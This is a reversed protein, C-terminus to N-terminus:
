TKNLALLIKDLGDIKHRLALARDVSAWRFEIHDESLKIEGQWSLYYVIRVVHYNKGRAHMLSSTVFGLQMSSVDLDTEEKIERRLTEEPSEGFEMKGEPLQWCGRYSSNNQGRKLLLLEDQKNRLIGSTLVVIKDQAM